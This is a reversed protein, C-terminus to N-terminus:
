YNLGSRRLHVYPKVDSRVTGQTVQGVYLWHDGTDYKGTVRCSLVALAEKLAIGGEVPSVELGAFPEAGPAFGSGFHRLLAAPDGGLVNLVFQKTEDIIPEIPRGKKVAVSVAPPDFGAQQIWSALMGMRGGRGAATLIACGSPIQALGHNIQDSTTAM